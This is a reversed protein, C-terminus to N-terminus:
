GLAPVRVHPIAIEKLEPWTVGALRQGTMAM